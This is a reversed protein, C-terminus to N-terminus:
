LLPKIAYSEPPRFKQILLLYPASKL